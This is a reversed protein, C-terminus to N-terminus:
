TKTVTRSYHPSVFAVKLLFCKNPAQKCDRLTLGHGLCPADLLCTHGQLLPQSSMHDSPWSHAELVEFGVVLSVGEEVLGCERIRGVYNVLQSSLM